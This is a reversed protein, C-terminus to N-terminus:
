VDGIETRSHLLHSNQIGHRLVGKIQMMISHQM